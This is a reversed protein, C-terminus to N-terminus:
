QKLDEGNMNLLQILGIRNTDAWNANDEGKGELTNDRRRDINDCRQTTGHKREM